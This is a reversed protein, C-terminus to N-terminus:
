PNRLNKIQQAMGLEFAMQVAQEFSAMGDILGAQMAEEAFFVAGTFAENDAKLGRNERIAAHFLNNIFDMDKVLPAADPEDAMLARHAENKRTSLTAYYERIDIGLKQKMMGGMDVFRTMVGISGIEAMPSGALIRTAGSSIWMAASAIMNDTHAVIPKASAKIAQALLDTGTVEGGPSDVMLVAAVADENANFENVMRRIEMNRMSRVPGVVPIVQVVPTGAEVEGMEARELRGGNARFAFVFPKNREQLEKFQSAEITGGRLINVLIPAYSLATDEHILWRSSLIDILQAYM